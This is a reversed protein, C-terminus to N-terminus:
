NRLDVIVSRTTGIPTSAGDQTVPHVATITAEVTRDDIRTFSSGSRSLGAAIVTADGTKLNRRVLLDGGAANGGAAQVEYEITDGAMVGKDNYGLPLQFRLVKGDSFVAPTGAIAPRLDKSLRCLVTRVAQMAKESSLCETWWRSSERFVEILAGGILLALGLYVNLEV